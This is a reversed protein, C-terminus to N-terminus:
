NDNNASFCNKYCRDIENTCVADCANIFATDAEVRDLNYPNYLYKIVDRPHEGQDPILIDNGNVPLVAPFVDVKIVKWVADNNGGNLSITDGVKYGYGIESIYWKQVGGNRINVSMELGVGKNHTQTSFFGSSMNPYGSGRNLQVLHLMEIVNLRNKSNSNLAESCIEPYLEDETYYLNNYGAKINGPIRTACMQYDLFNKTLIPNKYECVVIEGTENDKKPGRCALSAVDQNSPDGLDNTCVASRERDENMCVATNMRLNEYPDDKIPFSKTASPHPVFRHTVSPLNFQEKKNFLHLVLALTVVVAIM